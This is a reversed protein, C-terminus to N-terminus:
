EEFANLQFVPRCVTLAERDRPKQGVRSFSGYETTPSTTNKEESSFKRGRVSSYSPNSLYDLGAQKEADDTIYLVVFYMRQKTM